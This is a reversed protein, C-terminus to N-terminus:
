ERRLGQRIELSRRINKYCHYSADSKDSKDSLESKDSLDSTDSLDSVGCRMFFVPHSRELQM